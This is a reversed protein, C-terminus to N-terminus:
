SASPGSSCPWSTFFCAWLPSGPSFSRCRCPPEGWARDCLRVFGLTLLVLGALAGLWILDNM